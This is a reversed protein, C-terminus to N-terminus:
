KRCRLSVRSTQKRKALKDMWFSGPLTYALCSFLIGKKYGSGRMGRWYDIPAVQCELEVETFYKKLINVLQKKTFFVMHRPLDFFAANKNYIKWDLCDRTITSLLFEGGPQLIRDIEKLVYLPDKLHELMMSMIVTKFEGDQYSSLVDEIDGCQFQIQRRTLEIQATDSLDTGYLNDYGENFLNIM